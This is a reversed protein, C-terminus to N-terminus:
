KKPATVTLWLSDLKLGEVPAASTALVSHGDPITGIVRLPGSFRIEDSASLTLNVSKASDGSPLSIADSVVIGDPLGHLRVAIEQNFGGQRNVTVTVDVTKGAEMSLPDAPLTLEYHPRDEVISMLYVSWEDGHGFRDTVEVRYKGDEPLALAIQADAFNRTTDDVEKILKGDPGFLKLLPDLPSDFPQSVASVIVAQGKSGTFTYTDTEKPQAITGTVHAPFTLSSQDLESERLSPGQARPLRDLILSTPEPLSYRNPHLSLSMTEEPLNWGRVTLRSANGLTLPEVHDVFPGTTLTLRYIYTEAGSFGISSNPDAPFAFMRVYYTGSQQATFVIRPDNGHHDDVQEIVFGRPSLLQLVPDMPSGLTRHADVSAIFTQGSELNVAFTDVDESKGLQGNITIPLEPFENAEPVADNPETETAESLQGIIVVKLPSTGEANYFRVWCLGPIADAAATLTWENSKNTEGFVVEDRSCWVELPATGPKGILKVTVTEGQRVGAPFLGTVQPAEARALTQGCLLVVLLIGTRTLSM